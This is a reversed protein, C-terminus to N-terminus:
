SRVDPMTLILTTGVGGAISLTGALQQAFDHILRLGLNGGSPSTSIGVGDDAVCLRLAGDTRELTVKIEGAKGDPHAHKYANTVAENIVLALPVAREPQLSISDARAELRIRAARDTFANRLASTLAELLVAMNVSQSGSASRHLLEHVSAFVALRNQAETLAERAEPSRVVKAQARLLGISSQVSNKVRHNVEAIVADKHAVEQAFSRAREELDSTKTEVEAVVRQWKVALVLQIALQEMVRADAADFRRTEDHSVIWLTGLPNRGTDYLPVILGEIIPVHADNFYEFVSAPRHVLITAGEDLCLGCPSNRRPTTGGVYSSFEGALATWRFQANGNQDTELLSV